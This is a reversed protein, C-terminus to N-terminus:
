SSRRPEAQAAHSLQSSKSGSAGPDLSRRKSGTYTFPIDKPMPGKIRGGQRKQEWAHALIGVSRSLIFLGRGM